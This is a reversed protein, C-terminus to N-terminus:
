KLNLKSRRAEKRRGRRPALAREKQFLVIRTLHFLFASDKGDPQFSFHM